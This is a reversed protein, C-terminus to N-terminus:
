RVIRAALPSLPELRMIRAEYPGLKGANAVVSGSDARNGLILTKKAANIEAPLEVDAEQDSLNALVLVKEDGLTRLCAYAQDDDLALMEHSGYVLVPNEKRLAVVNKCYSLVSKPDHAQKDVNIETYSPNVDIWTKTSGFGAGPTGDWQMPTRAHDRSWVNIHALATEPAMGAAVQENYYNISEIDRVDAISKFTTNVMGIEDGALLYPTWRGTYLVTQLAKAGLERYAQNKVFHSTMRQWDHNGFYMTNWGDGIGKDWNNLINKLEKVSFSGQPSSWKGGAPIGAAIHEFGFVMQLEKRSPDTFQRAEQPNVGPMEGVSM